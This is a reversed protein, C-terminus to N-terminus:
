LDNDLKNKTVSTDLIYTNFSQTVDVDFQNLLDMAAWDTDDAEFFISEFSSFMDLLVSQTFKNIRMQERSYESEIQFNKNLHYYGTKTPVEKIFQDKSITLPSVVKHSNKYYQYLFDCCDLFKNNHMDFKQITIKEEPLLKMNDKKVTLSFCQRKLQFGNKTLFDILSKQTSDLMVQLPKRKDQMILSFPSFIPYILLNFKLYCNQNHYDNTYTSITGINKNNEFLQYTNSNIKLINNTM